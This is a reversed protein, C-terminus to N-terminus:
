GPGKMVWSGTETIVGDKMDVDSITPQFETLGKDLQEQWMKAIGERTQVRDGPKTFVAKTGYVSAIRAADRAKIGATMVAYAAEVYTRPSQTQAHAVSALVFAFAVVVGVIGKRTM